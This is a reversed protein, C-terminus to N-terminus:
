KSVVIKQTSADARDIMLSCLYMGAPLSSLSLVVQNKGANTSINQKMIEKGTLDYINVSAVGVSAALEYAVRLENSTPNPSCNLIVGKNNKIVGGNKLMNIEAQLADIQAQMDSSSVAAKAAKKYHGQRTGYQSEFTGEGWDFDDNANHITGDLMVVATSVFTNGNIDQVLVRGSGWPLDQLRVTGKVHFNATPKLNNYTNTITAGNAIDTGAQLNIGVADYGQDAISTNRVSGPFIINDSIGYSHVVFPKRPVLNNATANQTIFFSNNQDIGFDFVGTPNAASTALRVLRGTTNNVDTIANGTPANWSLGNRTGVVSLPFSSNGAERSTISVGASLNTASGVQMSFKTNTLRFRETNNTKFVLDNLDTTGLFQNAPNIAANGGYSWYDTPIPTTNGGGGGVSKGDRWAMNGFEDVVLFKDFRDDQNLGDFRVTGKVHLTATPDSHGIAVMVTTSDLSSTLPFITNGNRSMWGQASAATGIATSFALAMLMKSNNMNPNM